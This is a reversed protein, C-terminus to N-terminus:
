NTSGNDDGQDTQNTTNDDATDDTDDDPDTSPFVVPTDPIEEESADDRCEGLANYERCSGVYVEVTPNEARYNFIEPDPNTLTVDVKGDVTKITVAELDPIFLGTVFYSIALGLVAASIATALENKM